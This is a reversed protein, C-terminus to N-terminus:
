APVFGDDGRCVFPVLHMTGNTYGITVFSYNVHLTGALGRGTNTFKVRYFKRVKGYHLTPEEVSVVTYTRGIRFTGQPMFRESGSYTPRSGARGPVCTTFISGKINHIADGTRDFELETGGKLTGGYHVPKAAAASGAALAAVLGALAVALLIRIMAHGKLGM